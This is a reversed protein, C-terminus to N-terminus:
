ESVRRRLMFVVANASDPCQLESVLNIWDDAPTQRCAATLYPFMASLAYLCLPSGDVPIVVPDRFIFTQGVRCGASCNGKVSKVTLELDM